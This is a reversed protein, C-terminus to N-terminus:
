LCHQFEFQSSNRMDVDTHRESHGSVQVAKYVKALGNILCSVKFCFLKNVQVTEGVRMVSKSRRKELFGTKRRCTSM